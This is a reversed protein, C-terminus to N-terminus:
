ISSVSDIQRSKNRSSELIDVTNKIFGAMPVAVLLGAVGAVKVGVLLAVLIWVPNLGIFSGLLRPAVGSEIIQEIVTAVALVTVGLWFNNL